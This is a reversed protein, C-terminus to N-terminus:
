KTQPKINKLGKLSQKVLFRKDKFKFEQFHNLILDRFTLNEFEECFHWKHFVCFVRIEYRVWSNQEVRLYDMQGRTQYPSSKPAKTPKQPERFIM